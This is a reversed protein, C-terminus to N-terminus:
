TETIRPPKSAETPSPWATRPTKLLRSIQRLTRRAERWKRYERIEAPIIEELAPHGHFRVRLRQELKRELAREYLYRTDRSSRPKHARLKRARLDRLACVRCNQRGPVLLRGCDCLDLSRLIVRQAKLQSATLRYRARASARWKAYQEPAPKRPCKRAARAQNMERCRACSMKGFERPRGCKPCEGLMRRRSEQRRKRARRKASCAPCESKAPTRGCRYCLGAAKRKRYSRAQYVPKRRARYVRQNTDRCRDCLMRRYGLASGCPCFRVTARIVKPTRRANERWRLQDQYHKQCVNRGAACPRTCRYCVGSARRWARVRRRAAMRKGICRYCRLRGPARDAGCACQGSLRYRAKMRSKQSNRKAACRLCYYAEGRERGCGCLGDARLRARHRRRYERKAATDSM